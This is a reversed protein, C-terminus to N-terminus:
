QIVEVFLPTSDVTFQIRAPLTRTYEGRVAVFSPGGDKVESGDTQQPVAETIRMDQFAEHHTIEATKAEDDDNWAVWVVKGPQIFKYIYVADQKPVTEVADWDSGELVEVMRKYSYYALKKHSYGDRGRSNHILGVHDFFGGPVGGYEFWEVMTVWFIKDVGYAMAYVYRKVLQEAQERESRWDFVVRGRLKPAPKGDYESSETIWIPVGGHGINALRNKLEPLFEAFEKAEGTYPSTLRLHGNRRGMGGQWHFDFVDFCREGRRAIEDFIRTYFPDFAFPGGAAGAIVVQADSHASKIALYSLRLLKM